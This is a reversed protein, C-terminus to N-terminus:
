ETAKRIAERAQHHWGRHPHRESEITEIANVLVELLEPAAAILRANAEDEPKGYGFDLKCIFAFPPETDRIIVSNYTPAEGYVSHVKLVTPIKGDLTNIIWPGPTPPKPEEIENFQDEGYNGTIHRDLENRDIKM